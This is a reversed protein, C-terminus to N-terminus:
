EFIKRLAEVGGPYSTVITNFFEPSTKYIDGLTSNRRISFGGGIDIMDNGGGSDSFLRGFDIKDVNEMGVWNRLKRLGASDTPLPNGLRNALQTGQFAINALDQNFAQARRDSDAQQQNAINVETNYRLEAIKDLAGQRELRKQGAIVSEAVGGSIGRSAFGTRSTSAREAGRNNASKLLRDEVQKLADRYPQPNFANDEQLLSTGAGLMANLAIIYPNGSPLGSLAGSVGGTIVSKELGSWGRNGSNSFRAM